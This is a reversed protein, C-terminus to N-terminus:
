REIVVLVSSSHIAGALKVAIQILPAKRQERDVQPQQAITRSYIFYGNDTINRKLDEPNGFTESSNWELGVGIMQNIVGRDCVKGYAGKLGDMGSKTQPIKTNTQKLYNFGAVELAFKLWISNYVNDFYDNAGNSIVVPLSRVDGYLDAGATKAKTLITQNVLRDPTINTLAKLNMTQTTNSGAFNVSFARGAYAAKMLNSSSGGVSYYLCRTKFQTSDKVISCIGTVPELDETSSFQHVFIMDRSQIASATSTIVADEMELNTIVGVYAVNEETRAIADILSEGQADNGSVAVQGAADFMGAVSLDTGVGTPLQAFTIASSLGVKKSDLDFGDARGTVTVDILRRQLVEAIDNFDSIGTFDLGTLDINNGNLIVRLDGNAVAQINALNASINSTATIGVIAGISNVLPIIVLRGDGSLINPSQSFITNAMEATVSDTGYDNAVESATVYIRYEDINSPSETTFLALSNVSPESLGQPVNTVSINIVNTIPITM